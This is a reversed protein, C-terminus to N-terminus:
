WRSRPTGPLDDLLVFEYGSAKLRRIIKPLAAITQSRAGGGDHLLIVSGPRTASVVAKEIAAATQGRGWDRPDVTWLVTGLGQKAAETYAQDDVGGGPPRFWRPVVGTTKIIVGSTGSLESSIKEASSTSVDVHRYTHNGIAHGERAVRRAIEPNQKVRLGVMFFTAPVGEAKLVDLVRETHAPWPGDDFTLAIKKGEGAPIRQLVMPASPRVIESVIVDGSVAGTVVRELGAAGPEALSLIAGTGEIKTPIPLARFEEVTEEVIDAGVSTTVVDGPLVRDDRSAPRGNLMTAPPGGAGTRLVRGDSAAILDGSAATPADALVDAVRDAVGAVVTQGDVAISVRAFAGHTVGAFLSFVLVALLAKAARSARLRTVANIM